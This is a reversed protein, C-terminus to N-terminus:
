FEEGGLTTTHQGAIDDPLKYFTFVALEVVPLSIHYSFTRRAELALIAFVVEVRATAEQNFANKFWFHAAAKNDLNTLACLYSQDM